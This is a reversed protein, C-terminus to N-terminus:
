AKRGDFFKDKLADLTFDYGLNMGCTDQASDLLECIIDYEDETLEVSLFADDYKM